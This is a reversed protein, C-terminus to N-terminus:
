DKSVNILKDLANEYPNLIIENNIEAEYYDKVNKYVDGGFLKLLYAALIILLCISIQLLTLAPKATKKKPSTKETQESTNTQEKETIVVPNSAKKWGDAYSINNLNDM